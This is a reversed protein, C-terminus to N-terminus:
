GKRYLAAFFGDTGHLHPLLRVRGEGTTGDAPGPWSPVAARVDLPLAGSRAAFAAAVAEDEEALVSCTCYLLTGGPRLCAFANDLIAGQVLALRAPDAPDFRWKGDPNRRVVGTGTCPADVLVRDFAGAGGPLPASSFDHLVTEVGPLRLRRVTEDLVAKRAPSVDAAVVHGTGGALAALHATKGGPSACADLIREGPAPALLPSVLQAGEDMVHYRGAAFDPDASLVPPRGLSFAGPAYRCPSPERGEERWKGPLADAGPVLPNLRVTFPPVSLAELLFAEAGAPGLSADLASLLAPSASLREERSLDAAADGGPASLARDLSRLVANVFGALGEGRLGKVAAVTEHIAARPPVRLHLLQHAGLRLANRAVGDAKALPVKALFRSLRGDIEGRRRLTDLVLGTLLARDRPDPFAGTRFTRELLQDAFAGEGEVLALIRM